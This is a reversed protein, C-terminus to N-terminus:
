RPVLANDEWWLALGERLGKRAATGEPLEILYRFPKRPFIVPRFPEIRPIVGVVRKGADIFVADFRPCFFSHIANSERSERNFRFLIPAFDRESFMIGKLKPFFTKADRCSFLFRKKGRGSVAYVRTGGRGRTKKRLRLRGM